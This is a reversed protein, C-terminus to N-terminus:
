VTPRHVIEMGDGSTGMTTKGGGGDVDSGSAVEVGCKWDGQRTHRCGL